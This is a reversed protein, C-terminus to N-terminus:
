RSGISSEHWDVPFNCCRRGSHVSVIQCVVENLLVTALTKADLTLVLRFFSTVTTMWGAPPTTDLSPVLELVFHSVQVQVTGPMCGHSHGRVDLRLGLLLWQVAAYAAHQVGNVLVGIVEALTCVVVPVLAISHLALSVRAVRGGWFLDALTPM